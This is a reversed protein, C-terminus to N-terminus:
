AHEAVATSLEGQEHLGSLLAVAAPCFQSGTHRRLEDLAEADARLAGYPQATTMSDWADAVALLRAGDPIDRGALGDPYGAGDWREHHHRIWGVQEADLLGHVMRAGIAAHSKVQHYEAPTLSSPKLLLHEPIAIKGVDHVLAAECLLAVRDQPWGAARALHAALDAVRDCHHPTLPNRGDVATALARVAALTKARELRTAHEEDAVMPGADPTYRFTTNRGNTKARYLALDAHRVLEQADRADSLECVGVSTTLHGVGPFPTEAIAHRVREAAQLAGHGDTEPLIWAFEEGGVRAPMEGGRRLGVLRGAFEALVRDGAEHGHTDNVLKFHDLDFMVVSLPRDHRRARRVEEHLRATFARRNELGTLHDTSAQRALKERSEAGVVALSVLDAVRAIRQGAHPDAVAEHAWGVSVAGWLRGDVEIPAALGSRVPIWPRDLPPEYRDINAALGTRLTAAVATPADLDVIACPAVQPFGPASWSGVLRATGCADLQAVAGFDAGLVEAARSAAATLVVAPEAQGAVLTALARLAEQERAHTQLRAEDDHRQTIDEIQVVRHLPRGADDRVLAISTHTHLVGGDARMLRNEIDLRDLEGARLRELRELDAALDDPHTIDRLTVALLGPESYGTMSCLARNVSIMEGDANVIAIGIPACDVTTRYLQESARLRRAMALQASIDRAITSAGVIRGHRDRIPSITLSVHLDHGDRHRRVAELQEIHEGASVRALIKRIEDHQDPALLAAIHQGIAEAATYGYIREAAPNWDLIEGDLTKAIVADNTSAIVAALRAATTDAANREGGDATAEGEPGARGAGTPSDGPLDPRWMMM